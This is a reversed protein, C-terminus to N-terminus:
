LFTGMYKYDSDFPVEALRPYQERTGGVSLGGKAALVVMAGETPDGVLEENHVTADNCLAMPLLAPELPVDALGGVSKIHGEESYGVGSITYRHGGYVLLTATMKNLTLTGTKDSCIASTSGLTEVSSIKKVIAGKDAMQQVGLSLLTTVVTPMGTPVAAVAIAVALVFLEDAALGNWIGFGVVLVM